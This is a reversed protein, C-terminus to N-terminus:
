IASKRNVSLAILVQSPAYFTWMLISAAEYIKSYIGEPLSIFGSLNFLGVNIDCLLFLLMGIAFLINTKERPYIQALRIASIVNTLISIFYFVTAIILAELAIKFYSLLLCIMFALAVQLGLRKLYNRLITVTLKPIRLKPYDWVGRNRDKLLILRLSYFQQVVIFTLVGYYYQDLILLFLDSIITFLMAAQIFFNISRGESRGQLLVYCFCLIIMSFKIYSSLRISGGTLDLTLFAGYLGTQFMIFLFERKMKVVYHKM